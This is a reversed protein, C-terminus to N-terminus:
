ALYEAIGLAELTRQTHKRYVEHHREGFHNRWDDIEAKRVHRPARQRSTDPDTAEVIEDPDAPADLGLGEALRAIAAPKDRLLDEYRIELYHSRLELYRDVHVAWREVTREFYALDAYLDRVNRIRYHPHRELMRPSVAYHLWSNVVARGDRLLYLWRREDGLLRHHADDPPQHTWVIAADRRLAELDMVAFSAKLHSNRLYVQGDLVDVEDLDRQEPFSFPIGNLRFLSEWCGSRESFSRWSEQQSLMSRLIRYLLYNGSKEVGCQGLAVPMSASM